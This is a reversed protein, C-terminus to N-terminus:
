EPLPGPIAWLDMHPQLGWEDFGRLGYIYRVATTTIPESSYVRATFPVCYPVQELNSWVLVREAKLTWRQTQTSGIVGEPRNIDHADRDSYKIRMEIQADRPNPNLFHYYELENFPFPAKSLDGKYFKNWELWLGDGYFWEKHLKTDQFNMDAGSFRPKPHRIRASSILNLILPTASTVRAGWFGCNTFVEPAVDPTVLRANTEPKVPVAALTAPARDSFYVTVTAEVPKPTPNYLVLEARGERPDEHTPEHNYGSSVYGEYM